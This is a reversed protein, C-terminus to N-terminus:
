GRAWIFVLLFCIFFKLSGEFTKLVNWFTNWVCTAFHKLLMVLQFFTLQWLPLYSCAPPGCLFTRFIRLSFGSGPKKRKVAQNKRVQREVFAPSESETSDMSSDKSFCQPFIHFHHFVSFYVTIEAFISRMQLWELDSEHEKWLAAGFCVEKWSPSSNQSVWVGETLGAELRIRKPCGSFDHLSLLQKEPDLQCLEWFICACSKAVVEARKAAALRSSRAICRLFFECNLGANELLALCVHCDIPCLSEHSGQCCVSVIQFLTRKFLYLLIYYIWLEIDSYILIIVTLDHLWRELGLRARHLRSQKSFLYGTRWRVSVSQSHSM